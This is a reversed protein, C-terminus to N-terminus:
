RKFKNNVRIIKGKAIKKAKEVIVKIKEKKKNIYFKYNEEDIFNLGVTSVIIPVTNDTSLNDFIILQEKEEDIPLVKLLLDEVTKESNNTIILYSKM